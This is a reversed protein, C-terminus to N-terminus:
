RANELKRETVIRHSLEFMAQDRERMSERLKALEGRAEDQEKLLAAHEESLKESLKDSM